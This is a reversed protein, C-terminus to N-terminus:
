VIIGRLKSSRRTSLLSEKMKSITYDTVQQKENDNDTMYDIVADIEDPSKKDKIMTDVQKKAANVDETLEDDTPETDVEVDETDVIEENDVEEDGSSTIEDLLSDDEVDQKDIAPTTNVAQKVADAITAKLDCIADYLTQLTIVEGVNDVPITDALKVPLDLDKVDTLPNVDEFSEISEENVKKYSEYNSRYDKVIIEVGQGILDQFEDNTYHDTVVDVGDNYQVDVGNDTKTLTAEFGSPMFAKQGSVIDEIKNLKM